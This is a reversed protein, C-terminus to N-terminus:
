LSTVSGIVLVVSSLINSWAGSTVSTTLSYIFALTFGITFKGHYIIILTLSLGVSFKGRYVAFQLYM